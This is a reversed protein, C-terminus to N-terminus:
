KCIYFYHLTMDILMYSLYCLICAYSYAYICHYNPSKCPGSLRITRKFLDWWMDSTHESILLPLLLVSPMFITFLYCSRTLIIYSNILKKTVTSSIRNIYQTISKFKNYNLALPISDKSQLKYVFPQSLFLQKSEQFTAASTNIHVLNATLGLVRYFYTNPKIKFKM